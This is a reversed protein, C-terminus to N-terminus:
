YFVVLGSDQCPNHLSREYRHGDTACANDVDKSFDISLYEHKKHTSISSFFM